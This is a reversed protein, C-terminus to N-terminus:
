VPHVGVEGRQGYSFFWPAKDKVFEEVIMDREKGVIPYEPQSHHLGIFNKHVYIEVSVPRKKDLNYQYRKLEFVEQIIRASEGGTIEDVFDREAFKSRLWQREKRKFVETVEGTEEIVPFLKEM